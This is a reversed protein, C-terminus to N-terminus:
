TRSLKRRILDWFLNNVKETIEISLPDSSDSAVSNEWFFVYLPIGLEAAVKRLFKLSPERRENEVLSVYNSSVGVKEALEGQKLGALNRITRLTMGINTM